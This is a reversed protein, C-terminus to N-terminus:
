FRSIYIYVRESFHALIMYQIHYMSPSMSGLKSEFVLTHIDDMSPANHNLAAKINDNVNEKNSNPETDLQYQSSPYLIAADEGAYDKQLQKVQNSIQVYSKRREKDKRNLRRRLKSEPVFMGRKGNVQFYRKGKISGDNQGMTGSTLELGYWTKDDGMEPVKGIYHLIGTRDKSILVEDGVQWKTPSGITKKFSKKKKGKGTKIAKKIKSLAKKAESYIITPVENNTRSYSVLQNAQDPVQGFKAIYAQLVRDEPKSAM